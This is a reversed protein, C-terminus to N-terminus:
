LEDETWRDDGSTVKDLEDAANLLEAALARVDASAWDKVEEVYVHLSPTGTIGPEDAYETVGLGTHAGLGRGHGRLERGTETEYSDWGHGAPLECWPPCPRDVTPLTDYFSTM